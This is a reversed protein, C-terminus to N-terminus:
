ERVSMMPRRAWFGLIYTIMGLAVILWGVVWFGYLPIMATQTELYGVGMIREMYVQVIGAGFLAVSGGIVGFSVLWFPILGTIRRNEERIEAGSQNIVGLLVAVLALAMLTLRLDTLRTGQTWRNLDGLTNLMGMLGGALLLLIVAFAVWHAALMQSSNRDSLARYSHAALNIFVLPVYIVTFLQLLPPLSTNEIMVLPVITNLVGALALMGGLNYVGMQMWAPTINSFRHMLWFMLALGALLYGVQLRLGTLLADFRMANFPDAPPFFAAATCLLAICMGACWVLPIATWREVNLVAVVIFGGCLVILVVDLLPPLELLLRGELIGLAGGVSALLVLAFWSNVLIILAREAAVALTTREKVIAYLGGAILGTLLTLDLLVNAFGNVLHYPLSLALPDDNLFKVAALLTVAVYGMLLFVTLAFLRYLLRMTM